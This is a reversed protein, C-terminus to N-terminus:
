QEYVVKGIDSIDYGGARLISSHFDKDNEIIDLLAKIM